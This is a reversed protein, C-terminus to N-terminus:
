ALQMNSVKKSKILIDDAYFVTRVHPSLKTKSKKERLINFLMPSLVGDQLTDLKFDKEESM